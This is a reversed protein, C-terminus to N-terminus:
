TFYNKFNKLTNLILIFFINATGSQGISPLVMASYHINNYYHAIPTIM